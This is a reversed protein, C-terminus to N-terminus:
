QPRYFASVITTSAGSTSVAILGSDLVIGGELSWDM